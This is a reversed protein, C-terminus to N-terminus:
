KRIEHTNCFDVFADIDVRITRDDSLLASPPYVKGYGVYEKMQRIREYVKRRDIHLTEAIELPKLYM